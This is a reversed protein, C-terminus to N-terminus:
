QLNAVVEKQDKKAFKNIQIRYLDEFATNHWDKCSEPYEIEMVHGLVSTVRYTTQQNNIFYAFEFM